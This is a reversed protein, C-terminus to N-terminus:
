YNHSQKTNSGFTLDNGSNEGHDVLPLDLSINHRPNAVKGLYTVGDDRLKIRHEPIQRPNIRAYLSYLALDVSLRRILKSRPDEIQEWYAPEILDETNENQLSKFFSGQDGQAIWSAHAGPVNAAVLDDANARYVLGDKEVLDGTDYSSASVWPLAWLCVIEDISYTESSEWYVFGIFVLAADYRHRIYSATEEVASDLADALDQLGNLSSALLVDLEASKIASYLDHKQLFRKVM